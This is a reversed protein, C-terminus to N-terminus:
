LPKRPLDLEGPSSSDPLLAGVTTVRVGGETITGPKSPVDKPPNSQPYDTPVLLVPMTVSCFERLVRFMGCPSIPSAVNRHVAKVLVTREACITAGYSANDISAGKIITGDSTPLAGRVPFESYPAYCGKKGIHEFAGNILKTHEEVARGLTDLSM